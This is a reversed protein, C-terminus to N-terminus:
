VAYKKRTTVLEHQDVTCWISIHLPERLYVTKTESEQNAVASVMGTRLETQSSVQGPNVRICKTNCHWERGLWSDSPGDSGMGRMFEPKYSALEFVNRFM